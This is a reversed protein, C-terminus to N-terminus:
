HIREARLLNGITGKQWRGRGSLTPVGEDNLRRTIAQLSLGEAKMALIRELIADKDAGHHTATPTVLPAYAPPHDPLREAALNIAQAQSRELREVAQEITRELREMIGAMHHVREMFLTLDEPRLQLRGLREGIEAPIPLGESACWAQLDELLITTRRGPGGGRRAPLRGSKIAENLRQRSVKAHQVAETFNLGVAM